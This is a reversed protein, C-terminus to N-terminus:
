KKRAVVFISSGFPMRLGCRVLVNDLRAVSLLTRNLWCPLAGLDSESLTGRWREVMKWALAGLFLWPLRYTCVVVEFRHLTVLKKVESRVYRHRTMVVNDHGRRLCEFAPLHLILLGAPALADYFKRMVAADDKIAAHYLVDLCVIVDFAQHHPEWTNLDCCIVNTLGRTLCFQVARESADIGTVQGYRQLELMMGGTGCGADLIRVGRAAAEQAVYWTVLERLARYWWHRTELAFMREYEAAEM